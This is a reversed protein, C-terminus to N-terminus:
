GKKVRFYVWCVKVYGWGHVGLYVRESGWIVGKCGCVVGICVRYLGWVWFSGMIATEM